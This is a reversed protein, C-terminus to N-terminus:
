RRLNWDSASFKQRRIEETLRIEAASLAGAEATFQFAQSISAVLADVLQPQEVACGCLANIGPLSPALPSTELLISGHQLIAEKFRRQASGVVKYGSVILDERTRREFCLFAEALPEPKGTDAFRQAKVNQSALSDIICQHVTRYITESPGLSSRQSPICLSYTLEHHHVIAGGGTARRVMAPPQRLSADTKNLHWVSEFHEDKSAAQQFYGLSLTPKSWGYLRLTPVNTQGTCQLIAQDVAMNTAGDRPADLDKLLRM